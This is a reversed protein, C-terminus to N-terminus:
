RVGAKIAADYVAREVVDPDLSALWADDSGLFRLWDGFLPTRQALWVAFDSGRVEKPHTDALAEAWREAFTAPRGRKMTDARRRALLWSIGPRCANFARCVKILDLPKAKTVQKSV